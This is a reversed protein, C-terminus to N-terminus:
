TLAKAEFPSMGSLNYNPRLLTKVQKFEGDKKMVAVINMFFRLKSPKSKERVFVCPRTCTFNDAFHYPLMQCSTFLLCLISSAKTM